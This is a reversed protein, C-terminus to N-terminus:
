GVYIYYLGKLIIKVVIKPLLPMKTRCLFLIKRKEKREKGKKRGEEERGGKNREKMLLCVPM